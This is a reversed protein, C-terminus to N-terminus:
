AVRKVSFRGDDIVTPLWVIHGNNPDFMLVPTPNTEALEQHNIAVNSFDVRRINPATAGNPIEFIAEASARLVPQPTTQTTRFTRDHSKDSIAFVFTDDSTAQVSATIRDGARVTFGPIVQGPQPFTEYFAQYVAQGNACSQVTGVQEVTPSLAGDMGVWTLSFSNEGPACTVKPVTWSARVNTFQGPATGLKIYGTWNPTGAPNADPGILPLMGDENDRQHDGSQGRNQELHTNSGVFAAAPMASVVLLAAAAAIPAAVWRLTLSM